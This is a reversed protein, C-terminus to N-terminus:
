LPSSHSFPFLSSKLNTGPSISLGKKLASPDLPALQHRSWWSLKSDCSLFTSMPLLHTPLINSGHSSIPSINPFTFSPSSDLAPTLKTTLTGTTWPPFFNAFHFLPSIVYREGEQLSKQWTKSALPPSNLVKHRITLISTNETRLSTVLWLFEWSKM